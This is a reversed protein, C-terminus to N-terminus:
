APKRVKSSLPVKPRKIPARIATSFLPYLPSATVASQLSGSQLIHAFREQYIQEVTEVLFPM